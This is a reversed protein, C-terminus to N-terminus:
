ATPLCELEVALGHAIVTRLSAINAPMASSTACSFRCLSV